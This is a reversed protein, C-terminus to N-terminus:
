SSLTNKSIFTTRATKLRVRNRARHFCIRPLRSGELNSDAMSDSSCNPNDQQEDGYECPYEAHDEAEHHRNADADDEDSSNLM